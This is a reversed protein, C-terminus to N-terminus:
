KILLILDHLENKETNKKKYIFIITKLFNLNVNNPM